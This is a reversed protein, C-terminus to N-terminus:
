RSEYIKIYQEAIRSENYDHAAQRAAAERLDHSLVYEIGRALDAADRQTAVYGTRLHSIMEPIGGTRFGVCPTGVSLAEAVTNPLNDLLSPTVFADAAAYVSPLDDPSVTGLATIGIGPCRSAVEQADRGAVVLHLGPCKMQGLAELLYPMGKLEDSVRRSCFFVVRAEQPLHWRRRAEGQPIPHYIAHPICNCIHEVRVGPLAARARDTIWQSCGVLTVNAQRLLARKRELIRHPLSGPMLRCHLCDAEACGNRHHCVGLYPWEDHLTWVMPKGDRAMQELTSLSLMGQNVWHLHVVDAERYEQTHLVDVGACATDAMWMTKRNLGNHALVDLREVIAPWRNGVQAVTVADTQKDRVLMRAKMGNCCLADNLRSAAIAAGGTRESTCITLIRM